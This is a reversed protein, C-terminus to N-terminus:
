ALGHRRHADDGADHEDERHNEEGSDEQATVPAAM